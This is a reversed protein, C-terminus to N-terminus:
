KLVSTSLQRAVASRSHQGRVSGSLRWAASGSDNHAQSGTGTDRRRGDRRRAAATCGAPATLLAATHYAPPPSQVAPPRTSGALTPNESHAM